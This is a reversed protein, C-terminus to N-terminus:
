IEMRYATYEPKMGFREMARGWAPRGYGEIHDCDHRKAFGVLVEMIDDLWVSMKKGGVWDIAMARREPYDMIRTTVAAVIEDDNEEDIVVWLQLEGQSIAYWVSAETYKNKVSGIARRLHGVAAPWIDELCKNPVLSVIM